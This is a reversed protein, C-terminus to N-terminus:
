RFEAKEIRARFFEFYRETGVWWGGAIESPITYGGFTREAKFEGGFPIYAFRSGQTRDGWRMLSSRLCRGDSDVLLTVTFARGDINLTARISTEDAAEWKVGRQPLLASPLWFTEAALRGAASRAIDPGEARVVPVIGWLRFQVRGEGQWYYDGGSLRVIGKGLRAKWVFGRPPTLIERGRMPLWAAGLKPRFSGTMELTASSALPTGPRIAHLFYRRVPAPLHAVMEETFLEGRPATELQRWIHRVTRHDYIRAVILVVLMLGLVLGLALLVKIAM